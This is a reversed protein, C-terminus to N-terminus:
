RSARRRDRGEDPRRRHAPVHLPRGQRLRARRGGGAAAALLRAPRPHLHRGHLRAEAFPEAAMQDIAGCISACASRRCTPPAARPAARASSASSGTSSATCRRRPPASRIPVARRSSRCSAAGSSIPTTPSTTASRSSGAADVRARAAGRRHPRHGRPDGRRRRRRARARRHPRRAEREDLARALMLGVHAAGARGVVRRSTTPSAARAQAERSRPSSRATARPTRATSWSARADHRHRRGGGEARQQLADLMLPRSVEAGFREEWQRAFPM